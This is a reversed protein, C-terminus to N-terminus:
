GIQLKRWAVGGSVKDKNLLQVKAFDASVGLHGLAVRDKVDMATQLMPVPLGDKWRVGRSVVLGIYNTTDGRASGVPGELQSRVKDRVVTEHTKLDRGGGEGEKYKVDVVVDVVRGDVGHM